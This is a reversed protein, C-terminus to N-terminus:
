GGCVTEALREATAPATTLGYRFHGAHFFLNDRAPHKEVVPVNGPSAPRLGAWVRLPAGLDAVTGEARRRIRAISDARPRADFGADEVGGGALLLGDGRPILYLGDAFLVAAGFGFKEPARYLAMHGRLPRIDPRPPPAFRASWAGASVVFQGASFNEGDTGVASLIKRGKNKFKLVAGSALTARPTERLKKELAKLIRPPRVQCVEPLWVAQADGNERESDRESFRLGPAFKKPHVLEPAANKQWKQFPASLRFPPLVLMGCRRLESERAARPGISDLWAPFMEAGRRALAQVADAASWPPLPSLIGGGSWSASRGIFNEGAFNEDAFNGGTGGPPNPSDVVAVTAGRRTLALAGALGVVGGGIILIDPARM